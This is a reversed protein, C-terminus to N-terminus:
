EPRGTIHIRMIYLSTSPFAKGFHDPYECTAKGMFINYIEFSFYSMKAPELVLRAVFDEQLAASVRVAPHLITHSCCDVVNWHVRHVRELPIPAVNSFSNAIPLVGDGEEDDEDDDDPFGTTFVFHFLSRSLNQTEHYGVDPM